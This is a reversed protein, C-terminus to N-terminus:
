ASSFVCSRCGEARMPSPSGLGAAPAGRGVNLLRSASSRASSRAVITSTALSSFHTGNRAVVALMVGNMPRNPVTMPIMDANWPIPWVPEVFRPTTAGPM